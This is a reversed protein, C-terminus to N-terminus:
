GGGMSPTAWICSASDPTPADADYSPWETPEPAQARNDVLQRPSYSDFRTDRILTNPGGM